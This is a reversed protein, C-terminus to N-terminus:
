SAFAAALMDALQRCDAPAAMRPIRWSDREIRRTPDATVACNFGARRVAAVTSDDFAGFPYSFSSVPVGVMEQLTHRHTAIEFEKVDAAQFPLMLHSETHAGIEVGPMRSLTRLEHLRMPRCDGSVAPDGAWDKIQALAEDRERRGLPYVHQCCLRFADLRQATTATSVSITQHGVRLPLPSQVDVGSTLLIAELQDWWYRYGEGLAEGTVFYTAPYGLALLIPAADTLADM